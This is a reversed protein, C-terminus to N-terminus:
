DQQSPIQMKLFTKHIWTMEVRLTPSSSMIGLDPAAPEELQFLWAGWPFRCKLSRGTIQTSIVIQFTSALFPCHPHHNPSAPVRFPLLPPGLASPGWPAHCSCHWPRLLPVRSQCPSSLGCVQKGREVPPIPSPVQTLFHFHSTWYAPVLNELEHGLGGQSKQAPM